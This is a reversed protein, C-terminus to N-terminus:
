DNVVLPPAVELRFLPSIARTFEAISPDPDGAPSRKTCVLEAVQGSGLELRTFGSIKRGATVGNRRVATIVFRKGEPILLERALSGKRSLRCETESGPATVLQSPENAAIRIPAVATLASGAGLNYLHAPAAALAALAFFSALVVWAFAAVRAGPM